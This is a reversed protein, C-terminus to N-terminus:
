YSNRIRTLMLNIKRRVATASGRHNEVMLSFVLLRKSKTYMFGSYALIGSLSGSKAYIRGSDSAEFSRLTGQHSTPFIAELKQRGFERLMRDITSVLDHPSILNYRSLGSGDVWRPGPILFNFDSKLLSDIILGTNMKGLRREAVMLLLQEAFHNDSEVMMYRLVSDRSQSRLDRTPQSPAVTRIEAIEQQMTDRLLAITSSVGDVIFPVEVETYKGSGQQVRFENADKTRKVRFVSDSTEGFRVKWDIDPVTFVSISSDGGPDSSPFKQQIFRIVNGYVPMVSREAMYYDNYDDWAWGSGYPEENWHGTYIYLKKNSSRLSRVLHESNFRPHLFTPDGLPTLFVASDSEAYRFASISDPLNRLAAYCTLIKMNSAPVFRKQGNSEYIPKGREPDYLSFGTHASAVLSDNSFDRLATKAHRSASCGSFILVVVVGLLTSISPLLRDVFNYM